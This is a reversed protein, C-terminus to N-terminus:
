APAYETGAPQEEPQDQPAPQAPVPKAAKVPFRIKYENELEKIRKLERARQELVEEWDEGQEACENELTSLNSEMRLEAAQAEKLPDVWGRGDGIWRCACWADANEYFDPAEILGANIAEELWLRYVPKLWYDILWKRRGRFFRWAELLAARASSYNSKSFDKMLLEYPIHLGTAIHRFLTTVFSDFNSTPREPSFSSIKEGLQLPIIRGGAFDLTASKRSALADHYNSLADPNSSLLEVLGEQGISSETVLAVMANVVAAKLEANTFDGLVKFQRMVSAIAPKGRSQGIRDEDAPCHIVRVRGWDTRMPIREWKGVGTGLSGFFRPGYFVDGPHTTRIWAALKRGYADIEIGNRLTESDPEGNPNSLRDPEIVQLCTSFRRGREPLWLPLALGEGNLFASNWVQSTLGDGTRCEAADVGIGDWWTKWWAEVQNSWEEAWKRDKGLIKWNPKASLRLGSGVVNDHLTQRAGDAVGHNRGLDRSRSRIVGLEPNLDADASGAVPDWRRLDPHSRSGAVFAEASTRLRPPTLPQGNAGLLGTAKNM